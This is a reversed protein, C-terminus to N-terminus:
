RNDGISTIRYGVDLLLMSQAATAHRYRVTFHDGRLNVRWRHRRYPEGTNEAVMTLTGLPDTLFTSNGNIAFSQLINGASQTKCRLAVDRMQLWNGAGDIEQDIYSDIATSVDDAGTNLRYVFGDSSGGGYQLSFTNGSAGEFEAICSLAQGLVDFTWTGDEIHFVPFINPVTASGGSVLGVRIANRASDYALWMKDEYGNRICETKMPNFYNNIPASIRSVTKGDTVYVGYHSLWFALTKIKEDTATATRVGDIVAACKANLIGVNSSLLLKGFTKPTYGEYLTTCGGETGKEEQWIIIENHFKKVCRVANNRGDGPALIAFDEGNLMLPEDSTAVYCYEPYQTFSYLARNKWVGNAKGLTGIDSIDYHPIYQIGINVKDSLTKDFKIRYWYAQYPSDELQVREPVDLTTWSVFGSKTLGATDETMTIASWASGTWRAVESITTTNEGFTITASKDLETTLRAAEVNIVTSSVSLIKTTGNNSTTGSVTISQGPQFGASLFNADTSRIYDTGPGTGADFFSINSSGTVTAKTINPTAGVDIFLARAPESTAVYLIDEGTVMKSVDISSGGYTMYKLQAARYVKAEIADVLVGDWVNRIGQWSSNLGITNISIPTTLNASPKLRYWFMSLGFLYTPREDAGALTWSMSGNQGLTAGSLLTGDSFGSVATWGSTNGWYYLATTATAVNVTTLTFKISTLPVPSGIFLSHNQLVSTLTAVTSTDSDRVEVTYDEGGEPIAPVTTNKFVIFADPPRDTGINIQHQRVGDSFICIDDINGWSAPIANSVATLVDSGFAGTTVTPPNNTAEQVSGDVLQRYSHIETKAGKSFQYLTMTELSSDAVTHQVAQGKRKEFGPFLPNMNQIMSFGGNPIATKELATVAGGHLPILKVEMM